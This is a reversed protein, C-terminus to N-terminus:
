KGIKIRNASGHDLAMKRSRSPRISEHMAASIRKVSALENRTVDHRAEVARIARDAHIASRARDLAIAATGTM